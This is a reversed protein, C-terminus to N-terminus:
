PAAKYAVHAAAAIGGGLGGSKQMFAKLEASSERMAEMGIMADVYYDWPDSRLLQSPRVRYLKALM